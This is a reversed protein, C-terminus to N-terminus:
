WKEKYIIKGLLFYYNYWLLTQSPTESKRSRVAGLVVVKKVDGRFRFNLSKDM